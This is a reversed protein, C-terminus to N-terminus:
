RLAVGGPVPERVARSRLEHAILLFLGLSMFVHIGLARVEPSLLGLFFITGGLRVVTRRHLVAVVGPLVWLFYHTWVLPSALVM